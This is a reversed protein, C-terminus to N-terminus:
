KLADRLATAKTLHDQVIPATKGAAAKLAPVEGDQAYRTMLNLASQHGDVQANMYAKDFDADSTKGLDNLKGQMDDPLTTPPTLPQGSAAIAAKLDATTKTHMDVMMQAFAKVEPNTSRSLALKSSEIEFMDSAAARAVFDPAATEDAPTPITSAPNADPTAQVTADTEAPKEGCAALALAACAAGAILLKRYM